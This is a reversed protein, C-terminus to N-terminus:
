ARRPQLPIAAIERLSKSTATLHKTSERVSDHCTQVATAVIQTDERRANKVWDELSPAPKAAAAVRKAAEKEVDHKTFPWM